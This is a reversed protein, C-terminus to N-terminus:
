VLIWNDAALVADEDAKYKKPAIVIRDEVGRDDGLKAGWYSFSSNAAIMHKCHTMLRMDEFSKAGAHHVPVFDGLFGMNERVYDMDDSFVFCVPDDAKEKIKEFANRYYETGLIDFATGTYDGRRVHVAVSSCNEMRESILSDESSLPDKFGFLEGPNLGGHKMYDDTSFVGEIYWDYSLDMDEYAPNVSYQSKGFDFIHKGEPKHTRNKRAAMRRAIFRVPATMHYGPYFEHVRGIEEYSACPLKIGFVRELEYGNHVNHNRDFWTIDAVVQTRDGYVKQMYCFFAYEFMQNGLGGHFRIIIM